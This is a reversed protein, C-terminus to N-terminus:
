RRRRNREASVANKFKQISEHARDIADLDAKIEGNFRMVTQMASEALRLCNYAAQLKKRLSSSLEAQHDRDETISKLQVLMPSIASKLNREVLDINAEADLCSGSASPMACDRAAYWIQQAATRM